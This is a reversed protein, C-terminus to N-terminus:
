LLATGAIHGKVESEQIRQCPQLGEAALVWVVDVDESERLQRATPPMREPSHGQWQLQVPQPKPVAEQVRHQQLPPAQWQPLPQQSQQLQVALAWPQGQMHQHQQMTQWQPQLPQEPQEPMTSQRDQPPVTPVWPVFDHQPQHQTVPPASPHQLYMPVANVPLQRLDRSGGPHVVCEPPANTPLDRANPVPKQQLPPPSLTLPRMMMRRTSM